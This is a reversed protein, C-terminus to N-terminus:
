FIKKFKSCHSICIGCVAGRGIHQFKYKMFDSCAKQDILLKEPNEPDFSNGSIAMAPCSDVCKRCSKCADRALTDVFGGSLDANTLITGLRVAPGYKESLFLGNKGITGLGSLVAATKHQFLGSFNNRDTTQSAPVCAYLYGLSDLLMGIELSLRDIFANVTRYHHFYTHTPSDDIGSIVAPSLKITFSIANNLGLFGDVDEKLKCFGVESAGGLVAKEKIIETINM